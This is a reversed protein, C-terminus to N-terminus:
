SEGIEKDFYLAERNALDQEPNIRYEPLLKILEVVRLITNYFQTRYARADESITKVSILFEGIKENVAVIVDFIPSLQQMLQEKLESTMTIQMMKTMSDLFLLKSNTDNVANIGCFILANVIGDNIAKNPANIGSLTMIKDIAKVSTDFASKFEQTLKILGAQTLSILNEHELEKQTFQEGLSVLQKREEELHERTSAGQAEPPLSSDGSLLYDIFLKQAYIHYDNAQQLIIGNLVNKLPVQILKHYFSAPTKIAALLEKQPLTIQYHGIIRQSTIVGYTSFWHSFEDEVLTEDM